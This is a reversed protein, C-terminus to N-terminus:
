KSYQFPFEHWSLFQVREEFVSFLTVTNAESINSGYIYIKKPFLAIVPALNWENEDLGIMGLPTNLMANLLERRTYQEGNSKFFNFSNGQTIHIMDTIPQRNKIFLRVSDIFFHYAEELKWEDIGLGTITELPKMLSNSSFTIMADYHVTEANATYHYFLQMIRIKLDQGSRQEKIMTSVLNIIHNIEADESYYYVTELKDKVLDALRFHLFLDKFCNVLVETDLSTLLTLENGWYKSHKWAAQIMGTKRFILECFYILEKESQFYIRRL